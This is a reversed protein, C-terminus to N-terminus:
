LSLSQFIKMYRKVKKLLIVCCPLIKKVQSYSCYRLFSWMWPCLKIFIKPDLSFPRFPSLFSSLGKTLMGPRALPVCHSPVILGGNGYSCGRGIAGADLVAVSAGMKSLFYASSLGIVGGGVILVDYKNIFSM